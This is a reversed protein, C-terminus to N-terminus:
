SCVLCSLRVFVGIVRVVFVLILFMRVVRFVLLVGVSSMRLEM